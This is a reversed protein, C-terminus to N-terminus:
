LLVLWLVVVLLMLSLMLVAVDVDCVGYGCCIVDICRVVVVIAATVVCCCVAAAVGGSVGVGGVVVYRGYVGVACAVGGGVSVVVGSCV